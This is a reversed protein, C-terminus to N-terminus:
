HRILDHRIPSRTFRPEPLGRVGPELAFVAGDLPGAGTAPPISTVFLVDLAPGGFACMAPKAVPVPLSRVLRGLPDFCHVRGADNGCIWYCGDADIAAGDPRGPLPKMDVFLRRRSFVGDAPDFDFTWIAQVTPHSDCLYATRGDPSFALGNPTILGDIGSPQLGREDLRYLVGAPKALTMDMCMSGVWFRGERDTRGDNFRMGVIAHDVGAIREVDAAPPEGVTLRGIDRELAVVPRGAADLALCGVREPLSWTREDGAPFDIRRIRCGDIDVRWLSQAVTDWVPSEGVRDRTASVVRIGSGAM